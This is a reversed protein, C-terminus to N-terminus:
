PTRSPGTHTDPHRGCLQVTVAAPAQPGQPSHHPLQQLYMLQSHSVDGLDLDSIDWIGQFNAQPLATLNTVAGCLSVRSRFMCVDEGGERRM